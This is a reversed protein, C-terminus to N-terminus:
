AALIRGVGAEVSMSADVNTDGVRFLKQSVYVHVCSRNTSDSLFIYTVKELRQIM